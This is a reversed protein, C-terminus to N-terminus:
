RTIESNNETTRHPTLVEMAVRERRAGPRFLIQSLKVKCETMVAADPQKKIREFSGVLRVKDGRQLDIINCSPVKNLKVSVGHADKILLSHHTALMPDACDSLMRFCRGFPHVLRKANYRRHWVVDGIFSGEGDPAKITMDDLIGAIRQHLAPSMATIQVFCRGENLGIHQHKYKAALPHAEATVPISAKCFPELIALVIPGVEIPLLVQHKHRVSSQWENALAIYQGGMYSAPKGTKPCPYQYNDAPAHARGKIDWTIPVNSNIKLAATNMRKIYRDLHSSYDGVSGELRSTLTKYKSM